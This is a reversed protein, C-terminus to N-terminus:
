WYEVASVGLILSVTPAHGCLLNDLEAHRDASKRVLNELYLTSTVTDKLLPSASVILNLAGLHDSLNSTDVVDFFHPAGGPKRYEHSDLVYPSLDFQRRYFMPKMAESTGADRLVRCFTLADAVTFRVRLGHAIQARFATAWQKFQLVAAAVLRELGSTQGDIAFPSEPALDALGAALHFGLLPDTGYHLLTDATVVGAILPNPVTADTRTLSGHEWFHGYSKSADMIAASTYPAASRIGTLVTGHSGGMGLERSRKLEADFAPKSASQAAALCKSWNGRVLRLTGEDCFSLVPGYKSERWAELSESLSLLTQLHSQLRTATEEQLYTDYYIDWLTCHDADQDQDILLSFLM